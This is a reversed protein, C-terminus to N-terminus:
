KSTTKIKQLPPASPSRVGSRRMAFTLTRSKGADEWRKGLKSPNNYVRTNQGLKWRLLAIAAVPITRESSVQHKGSPRIGFSVFRTTSAASGIDLLSRDKRQSVWALPKPKIIM